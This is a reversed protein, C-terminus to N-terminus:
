GGELEVEIHHLARDEWVPIIDKVTLNMDRWQVVQGPTFTVDRPLSTRCDYFLLWRATHETDDEDAKRTLQPDIRIYKLNHQVTVTPHHWADHTKTLLQAEHPLVSRPIPPRKVPM